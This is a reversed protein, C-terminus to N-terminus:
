PILFMCHLWHIRNGSFLILDSWILDFDFDFNFDDFSFWISDCQILVFCFNVSDFGFQIKLIIDYWTLDLDCQISDFWILIPDFQMANCKILDFQFRISNCQILALYFRILAILILDFDYLIFYLLWILICDSWILKLDFGYWVSDVQMASFSILDLGIRWFSCVM